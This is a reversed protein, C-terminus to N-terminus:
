TNEGGGEQVDHKKNTKTKDCFHDTPPDTRFGAPAWVLYFSSWTAGFHRFVFQGALMIRELVCICASVGLPNSM